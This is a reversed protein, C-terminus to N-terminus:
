FGLMLSNGESKLLLCMVLDQYSKWARPLGEMFTLEMLPLSGTRFDWVM